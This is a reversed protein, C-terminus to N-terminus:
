VNLPQAEKPYLPQTKKLAVVRSTVDPLSFEAGFQLDAHSSRPSASLSSMQPTQFLAQLRKLSCSALPIGKHSTSLEHKGTPILSPCAPFEGLLQCRTDPGALQCVCRRDVGNRLVAEPASAANAVALDEKELTSGPFASLPCPRRAKFFPEVPFGGRSASLPYRPRSFSVTPM